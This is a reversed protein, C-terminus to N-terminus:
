NPMASCCCSPVERRQWLILNHREFDLDASGGCIFPFLNDPENGGFDRIITSAFQATFKKKNLNKELLQMFHDWYFRARGLLTAPTSLAFSFIHMSRTKAKCHESSKKWSLAGFSRSSQNMCPRQHKSQDLILEVSRVHCGELNHCYSPVFELRPGSASTSISVALSNADRAEVCINGM